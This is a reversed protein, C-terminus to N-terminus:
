ILSLNSPFRGYLLLAFAQSVEHALATHLQSLM